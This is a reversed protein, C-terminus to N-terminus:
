RLNLAAHSHRLGFCWSTKTLRNGFPSSPFSIPSKWMSDVEGVTIKPERQKNTATKRCPCPVVVVHGDGPAVAEHHLRAVRVRFALNM